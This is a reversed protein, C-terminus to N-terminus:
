QVRVRYIRSTPAALSDTVTMISGNGTVTGSSSWAPADPTDKFEVTYSLNAVSTFSVETMSGFHAVHTIRPELLVRLLAETSNVEGGTNRVSVSYRGAQAVSVSTIRLVANTEGLMNAGDMKWQYAIPPAGSAIVGFSASAGNTVTLSQPQTTISPPIIMQRVTLLFARSAVGGDPETVRVTITATGFRNPAPTVRLTRNTDLGTILMSGAPLLEANSSDVTVALFQPASEADRAVFGIPGSTSNEDITLNAFSSLEPADNVPTVTVVFSRSASAGNGDTVRVEMTASGWANTVPQVRLLRNTGTGILLVQSPDILRPNSSMLEFGLALPVTEVDAMTFVVSLVADELIVRNTIVGIVPVDNISSVTVVFSDSAILGSPDRVTITINASGFRDAAPTIRVTRNSGSGGFSVGSLPVLSVDSSAATLILGSASSDLDGVAFPISGTSSDEDIQQNAIDSIVPPVVVVLAAGSSFVSGVHNSVRVRYSGAAGPTVGNIVHSSNTAGTIDSGNQQWQYRLLPSGAASVSFSVSAGNRTTRSLPNSIISPPLEADVAAVAVNNGPVPDISTTGVAVSNSFRGAGGPIANIQVSAASGADLVSLVCGISGGANTCGGQSATASVFSLGPPLVDSVLVGLATAPGRNTVVISYTVVGGVAVLGPAGVMSVGLDAVVNAVTVVNASDNTAVLDIADSRVFVDNKLNGVLTPQVVLAVQARGGSALTGLNCEVRGSDHSCSGQSSSASVFHATLAIVDTVITNNAANPGRNTVTILYTLEHGLLVLNTSAVQSIALDTPPRAVTVIDFSSNNPVLDVQTASARIRNTLSGAVVPNVSVTAAAGAGVALNGFTCVVVGSQHVCSGLTSAASLFSVGVPLSNTLRVNSAVSPGLNTVTLSYVLNSGLAVSPSSAVATVALDAIPDLTSIALHWGGQIVGLGGLIGDVVYLSWVGNPNTASFVSLGSGSAVSPAPPPFVDVGVGYNAPRYKGSSIVGAGPLPASADDDFELTVGSLSSGGADSMLIVSQGGPGVLMVDFDKAFDHTINSLTATVKYVSSTLGSILITSPYPQAIGPASPTADAVQIPTSNRFTSPNGVVTITKISENDLLNVERDALQFSNLSTRISFTGFVNPRMTIVASATAGSPMADFSCFIIGGANDCYGQSASASVFSFSPPFTNTLVAISCDSPGRNTASITVSVQGLVTVPNPTAEIGVALDIVPNILLQYDEVEGDMAFGDFSLGGSSSFRFRAYRQGTLASSPISIPVLNTGATLPYSSLIREDTESWSGNGNFDIWADLFGNASAVVVANATEGLLLSPPVIVGDEDDLGNSDDGTATISPIGNTEFDIAAGLRVGSVVRHRAGNFATTTPYGLAEPADGFDMNFVDLRAMSSTSVGAINSAVLTYEGSHSFQLGTLLLSTNTQNVMLSTRNFYWQYRLPVTGEVQASFAVTTGTANTSGGPQSTFTPPVLVTLNAVASLATGVANSVRVHYVGAQNLEVGTLVLSAETRGPIDAGNLVWQYSFPGTGGVGVTFIVTTGSLATRSLPHTTISVPVLVSLTAPLSTAQGVENTIVVTYSGGNAPQATAINLTANTAGFLNAGNFRWQYRPSTANIAVSFSASGGNTISLSQPQGSIFPIVMASAASLVANNAQNIDVQDAGVSAANTIQGALTTIAKITVSATGSVNLSGFSCVVIGASQSCAGQTSIASVFNVGEPLTDVLSVGTAVVPGANSVLISYVQNNGVAIPNIQDVRVISLDVAAEITVPYDEVEGNLAEGNFSLGGTTNFRFRAFSEGASAGAPVVFTLNNVGAVLSRNIFIQEGAGAWSGDRNFDLWANLVGNASAVVSLSVSQGTRIPTNFTVGDEDDNGIADDGSASADPIGDPEFDVANGLRVGPIIRHRAGNSALTTFYSGPADGFDVEQVTLTAVASTRVGAANSVTLSYAGANTLTVYPYVLSQAVQGALITSNLRWQYHLPQSGSAVVTFSASSGALNTRSLPQATISPPVLVTLAAMASDVQGVGNTVRVFYNGANAAIASAITLSANTQGTMGASNFFWQYRLPATGTATVTFTVPSGNTITRSQPQLTIGPANLVNVMATTTNNAPVPDNEASTAVATNSVNGSLTPRIALTVTATANNNLSGLQCIVSGGIQFCAGQSSNVSIFSTNAPLANSLTVSTARSPGANSVVLTTTFQGNAAVPNPAIAQTVRLDAVPIITALYGEVEGDAAPGSFTLGGTTNFRFRAYTGGALAAAPVQLSLFNNGPTLLTNTFIQEGADAWSGNQNWDMWANLMGNTSAIVQLTATQAVILPSSFTIGDEDDSGNSDDGLAGLVPQGDLETDVIAGLHIGPVIRHRAGDAARLTPYGLNAADGYDLLVVTLVAVSSTISGSTNSVVVDYAGADAATAGSLSLTSSTKGPLATGNYRWQYNPGVSSTATISFTAPDGNTITLSQPQSTIVPSGLLSLLAPPSSTVTNFANAVVVTFRAGEDGNNVPATSYTSNTAGSVPTNDRYWQFSFPPTGTVGVTYTAPTGSAVYQSAPQAAIGVPQNFAPPLVVGTKYGFFDVDVAGRQSTSGMGLALYNAAPGDSGTGATINFTTPTQSGDTYIAVRHTGPDAGNDQIIIWFEHFQTSDIPLNNPTGPEGPDINNTRTSGNLHNMHLGAQGFNHTTTTTIDEISQHLSFGVLMGGDGTQRIGFMGKGDSNNVLGDPANTIQILPDSPPTLRARFTLTVGDNLLTNANTTAADLAMNRTFYFRRNNFGSGSAVADEITAIGNASGVGGALGNGVGRGDGAWSDGEHNWSGDLAATLSGAVGTGQYLYTWGADPAPYVPDSALRVTLQAIISTISGESNSVVVRYSGADTTQISALALTPATKGSLANGNRQWQYALPATGNAVVVFDHSSGVVVTRHTPQSLVSPVAAHLCPASALFLLFAILRTFRSIRM